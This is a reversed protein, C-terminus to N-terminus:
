GALAPPPGRRSAVDSLLRSRRVPRTRTPQVPRRQPGPLPLLELTAGRMPGTVLDLLRWSWEEGRRLVLASLVAALLHGGVMLWGPHSSMAMGTMAGAVPAAAGSASGMGAHGMSGGFVASSAPAAFAVHFLVQGGLLMTLLPVITWRRGSLAIAVTVAVLATVALPGPSPAAGGAATHGGSALCTASLGVVSGRLWRLLGGTPRGVGTTRWGHPVERRPYTV